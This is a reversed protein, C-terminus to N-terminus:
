DWYVPTQVVVGESTFVLELDKPKEDLEVQYFVLNGQEIREVEDIVKGKYLNDLAQTVKLPLESVPIDRRTRLLQGASDIEATWEVTGVTFEAEFIGGKKKWDTESANVFKAKLTNSVVSPIKETKIQQSCACLSLMVAGLILINAKM